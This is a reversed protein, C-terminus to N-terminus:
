EEALREYMQYETENTSCGDNTTQFMGKAKYSCQEYKKHTSYHAIHEEVHDTAVRFIM